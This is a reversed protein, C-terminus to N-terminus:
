SLSPLTLLQQRSTRGLKARSPGTNFDFCIGHANMDKEHHQHQEWFLVAVCFLQFSKFLSFIRLVKTFLESPIIINNSVPTSAIDIYEKTKVHGKLCIWSMVVIGVASCQSSKVWYQTPSSCLRVPHSLMKKFGRWWWEHWFSRDEWNWIWSFLTSINKSFTDRFLLPRFSTVTACNKINKEWIGASFFWCLRPLQSM